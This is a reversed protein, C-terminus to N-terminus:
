YSSMDLHRSELILAGAFNSNSYGVVDLHDFRMYTLKYDRTGKLYRMVKKATKWHELGRNSQYSGLMGVAYSIDLRICVQAYMLSGVAFAYPINKMEKKELDNSPCQNLSFKDCKVIPAIGLSCDKMHFRELVKNIYTEQSLGLIWQSRNREIKHYICQDMVNEIFGFSSIVDHFKLYWQRSAQKLGCISKKLKCVIYDNGNTIFREPQKMYVEEELDGNLFTTKVDMQHLEMDFHAVLAIIIRFLDKKSVHSFTDHYDIGEQQTFGKAVLRAEDKMANYWLTSESGGVAQSFTIPDDEVGIDIDYEQLYVVYDSSITSRRERTSRRLTIDVNGQQPQQMVSDVLIDEHHPENVVLTEQVTLDQHSDPFIILGSSSELTPEINHREEAPCGWVHVHRLSPKWCKWLEFPTKPVAKTPVRNLVYTSTKIAESWLSLPLNSNSVM